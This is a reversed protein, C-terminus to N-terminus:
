AGRSYFYDVLKQGLDDYTATHTAELLKQKTERTIHGQNEPDAEPDPYLVNDVAFTIIAYLVRQRSEDDRYRQKLDLIDLHHLDKNGEFTFKGPEIERLPILEEKWRLVTAVDERQHPGRLYEKTWRLFEFMSFPANVFEERFDYGSGEIEGNDSLKRFELSNDSRSM